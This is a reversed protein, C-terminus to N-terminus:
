LGCAGQGFKETLQFKNLCVDSTQPSFFIFEDDKPLVCAKFLQTDSSVPCIRGSFLDLYLNVDRFVIAPIVDYGDEDKVEIVAFYAGSVPYGCFDAFHALSISLHRAGKRNKRNKTKM